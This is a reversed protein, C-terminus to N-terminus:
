EEFRVCTSEDREKKTSDYTYLSEFRRNEILLKRKTKTEKETPCSPIMSRNQNQNRERNNITPTSQTKPRPHPNQFILVESTTKTNLKPPKQKRKIKQNHSPRNPHIKPPHHRPEKSLLIWGICLFISV